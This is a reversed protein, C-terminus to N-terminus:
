QKGGYKKFIDEEENEEEDEEKEEERQKKVEGLAIAKLQNKRDENLKFVDLPKESERSVRSLPNDPSEVTEVEEPPEEFYKEFDIRNWCRQLYLPLKSLFEIPISSNFEGKPLFPVNDYRHDVYESDEHRIENSRISEALKVAFIKKM